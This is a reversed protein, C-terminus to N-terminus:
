QYYERMKQLRAEKDDASLAAYRERAHKRRLEIPTLNTIGGLTSTSDEGACAFTNGSCNHSRYSGRNTLVAEKKHQKYECNNQLRAQKQETSLSAYRERDSKRRVEAATLNTVDDLAGTGFYCLAYVMYTVSTPRPALHHRHCVWSEKREM